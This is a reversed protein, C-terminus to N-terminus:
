AIQIVSKKNQSHNSQDSSLIKGAETKYFAKM